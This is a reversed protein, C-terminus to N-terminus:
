NFFISLMQVWMSLLISLMSDSFCPIVKCDHVSPFLLLKDVVHKVTNKYTDVSASLKFYSFLNLSFIKLQGILM